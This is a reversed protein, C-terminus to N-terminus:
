LNAIRSKFDTFDTSENVITKLEQKSVYGPITGSVGDIIITSDDAFVSGILDGTVTGTAIDGSYLEDFNENIKEFALRLPDGDGKNPSSGLNIIQKAM